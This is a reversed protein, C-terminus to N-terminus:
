NVPLGPPEGDRQTWMHMVSFPSVRQVGAAFLRQAFPLSNLLVNM